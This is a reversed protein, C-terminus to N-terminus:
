RVLHTTVRADPAEVAAAGLYGDGADIPHLTWGETSVGGLAIPAAADLSVTFQQLPFGLGIGLGKIFAEKRVWATFFARELAADPIAALAECEAPSFYHGAIQRATPMPRLQEVDVGVRRPAIACVALDGSHSLNFQIPPGSALVPKGHETAGFRIAAAATGTHRALLRRLFARAAVFRTRHLPMVFRDARAREDAALVAWAEDFAEPALATGTVWVDVDVRLRSSAL